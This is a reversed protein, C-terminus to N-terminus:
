KQAVTAFLSFQNISIISRLLLTIGITTLAVSCIEFDNLFYGLLMVPFCSILSSCFVAMKGVACMSGFISSYDYLVNFVLFLMIHIM